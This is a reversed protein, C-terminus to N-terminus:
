KPMMIVLYQLFRLKFTVLRLFSILSVEYTLIIFILNLTRFLRMPWPKGSRKLFDIRFANSDIPLTSNKVKLSLTFGNKMSNKLFVANIFRTILLTHLVNSIILFTYCCYRPWWTAYLFRKSISYVLNQLKLTGNICFYKSFFRPAAALLGSTLAIIFLAFLTGLATLFLIQLSYKARWFRICVARNRCHIRTFLAHSIM